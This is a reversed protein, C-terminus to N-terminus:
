PEYGEKKLHEALGARTRYLTTKVKGESISFREAIESLSDAYWYRRIFVNRKEASIGRLYDSIVRSLEKGDVASEVDGQAPIVSEIEDSLEAVAVNRKERAALRVRDLSLNRAIKALFAFFNERPELPPISNWAKLYVDNECELATQRDGVIRESLAAIKKGYKDATAAIASEDRLLFLDIIEGDKM